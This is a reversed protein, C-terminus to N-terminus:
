TCFKRSVSVVQSKRCTSPKRRISRNGRGIVSVWSIVSIHNFTANFVMVEIFDYRACEIYIKLYQGQSWVHLSNCDDCIIYTYTDPSFWRGTALWQCVKDCLTTDVRTYRAQAPFLKRRQFIHMCASPLVMKYNIIWNDPWHSAVPRHNEGSVGTEEV